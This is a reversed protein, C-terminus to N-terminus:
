TASRKAIEAMLDQLHAPSIETMCQEGESLQYYSTDDIRLAHVWWPDEVITSVLYIENPKDAFEREVAALTEFVIQPNTLQIDNDELILITRAAANAKWAALKPFKRACAERIRKHRREEINNV